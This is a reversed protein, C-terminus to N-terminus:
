ILKIYYNIDCSHLVVYIILTYTLIVTNWNEMWKREVAFYILFYNISSITYWYKGSICSVPNVCCGTFYLGFFWLLLPPKEILINSRMEHAVSLIIFAPYYTICFASFCIFMMRAGRVRHEFRRLVVPLYLSSKDTTCGTHEQVRVPSYSSRQLNRRVRRVQVYVAIYSFAIVATPILLGPLGVAMMFRFHNDDESHLDLNFTCFGIETLDFSDKAFQQMLGLSSIAPPIIWPILIM